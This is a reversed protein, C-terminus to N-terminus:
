KNAIEALAQVALAYGHAGFGCIVGAAVLSVMTKHRFDERTHINSLHIEVVPKSIARIADHIAISTHGYAAPNLVVGAAVTEAEQIWSVLEGEHNTQRFDIEFGLARATDACLQEIDALSTSGYHGPERSGLLNLNPGNLVFISKSM